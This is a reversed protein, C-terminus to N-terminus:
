ATKLSGVWQACVDHVHDEDVPGTLVQESFREIEKTDVRARRMEERVAAVAAWPNPSATAVHIKPYRPM